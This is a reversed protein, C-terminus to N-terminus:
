YLLNLVALSVVLFTVTMGSGARLFDAVKYDGPGMILANVQHTPLMFSNSASLAVTLAFMAPDADTAIAINIAIPVLLVTAGVNSMILTFGIALVAVMAQLVWTPVDGLAAVTHLAIFNAAGSSEVAHGLPLLGALLFVTKWSVARYAQDITLVGFVIMGVAGTLLAVPLIINTFLIMGLSIGLFALALAVKYPSRPERPYDATVVVFDRDQELRALDEWRTHCILTDGGQLPIDQLQNTIAKGGRSISLLSLGYTARLRLERVSKGILSSNPPVVIEAVGAIARALLYRFDKLKHRAIFGGAITFRRLDDPEAIVAITAPAVLPAEMPPSVTTKGGFHSAVIKAEYVQQIARIDMGVLPSGVPVELERIAADIGHVHRLYRLTGAGRPPSRQTTTPLVYRGFVIFYVLGAAVLSLGIPTVSFLGFQEMQQAPPLSRNANDLLDNLTILPSSAVMTITGGLIACFGMPMILRSMPVQTRTAIRAVVPIFLATAGVNQMFSSILAATGAVLTMIRRETNGGLRLIVGAVQEMVGTKDLGGGLIMVAIISVVANSSLGSFLVETELLGEFGPVFILLGLLTMVLLAVVDVRLLETAFLFVALGVIALVIAMEGTLTPLVEM